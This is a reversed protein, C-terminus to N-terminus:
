AAIVHLGASLPRLDIWKGIVHGQYSTMNIGVATFPQIAGGGLAQIHRAEHIILVHIILVHIILVHTVFVDIILVDIILVDIILVDIILGLVITIRTKLIM